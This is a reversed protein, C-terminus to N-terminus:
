IIEPSFSKNAFPSNAQHIQLLTEKALLDFPNNSRMNIIFCKNRFVCLVIMYM